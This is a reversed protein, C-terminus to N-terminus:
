FPAGYFAEGAVVYEGAADFRMIECARLRAEGLVTFYVVVLTRTGEEWIARDLTFQISPIRAVAQQWYSRLAAKGEVRGHGTIQHAKPSIFVLEEAYHTLVSEYDRRSWAAVWEQAFRVADEATRIM